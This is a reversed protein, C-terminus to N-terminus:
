EAPTNSDLREINFIRGAPKEQPAEIKKSSDPGFVFGPDQPIIDPLPPREKQREINEKLVKKDEPETTPEPAPVPEEPTVPTDMVPSAVIEAPPEAPVPTTEGEPADAPMATDSGKTGDLREIHFIRGKNQKPEETEPRADPGFHMGPIESLSSPAYDPKEEPAKQASPPIQNDTSVGDLREMKFKRNGSSVVASQPEHQMLLADLGAPNTDSEYAELMGVGTPQMDQPMADAPGLVVYWRAIQPDQAYIVRAAADMRQMEVLHWSLGPELRYLALSSFVASNCLEEPIHVSLDVQVQASSPTREPSIFLSFPVYKRPLPEPAETVTKLRAYIVSPSHLTLAGSVGLPMLTINKGLARDANRLIDNTDFRVRKFRRGLMLDMQDSFHPSTPNKSIGFPLLSVSEPMDGFQTVMAFGYSYNATLKGQNLVYDGAIFIPDGSQAGPMPAERNGCRIRHVNGWPVQLDGYDNRLSNAAEEVARLIIDQAGPVNALVADYFVAETPFHQAARTRAFNWWLHYFTMGTSNTEAIYNWNRLVEIGKWFDPHANSVRDKRTEAANLIAPVMDLAAPVLVDFLMSQHDRFSRKGTNLLQRVRAARYTNQDAILWQPWLSSDLPSPETVTWPPTGCSQIYGSPPNLISPLNAQPIVERWAMASLNANVPVRWDQTLTPDNPNQDTNASPSVRIGTKTNYLYFINNGRDAYVINFCPIQHMSVAAWFSPLNPARAMEVMQRLGGFDTFGGIYWSNLGHTANEFIPGRDSIIAPVYRTEFGANTRVHYPVSSAMYYLLMADEPSAENANFRPDNANRPPPEYAEIFMDAFDPWNPTLAWGLYDNHGQLLVPLGRLTTGYVNMDGMVLHAEYWQFYSNNNQHPNIVLTPYGEVSRAASVAWANASSYAPVRHYVDPLEFPAMSMLFAHWYALVDQPRVGDTWAPVSNENDLLWANIGASFGECLSVTVPDAVALAQEALRAHGMKLSFADSDAWAEGLVAALQGNAMRYSLLIHEAHDEAQAYGFVYAMAFPNDAFIHPTGWEDRYLTAQQWVDVGQARSLLPCLVVLLMIAASLHHVSCYKQTEHHM